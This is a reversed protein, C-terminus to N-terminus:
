AGGAATSRVLKAKVYEVIESILGIVNGVLSITFILRFGIINEYNLYLRMDGVIIATTVITALTIGTRALRLWPPSDSHRLGLAHYVIEFALIITIVVIYSRFLEVNLRHGLSLTSRLFAEEMATFIEPYVNLLAIAVMAGAISFVHSFKSEKEPEIKVDKLEEPTWDATPDLGENWGFRTIGIFILTLAGVGSLFASLIQVPLGLTRLVIEGDPIEGSVLEVIYVVTFAIAMAGLIIKM